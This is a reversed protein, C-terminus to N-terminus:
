MSNRIGKEIYALLFSLQHFSTNMNNIAYEIGKILDEESYKSLLFHLIGKDIKRNEGRQSKEYSEKLLKNRQIKRKANEELRQKKTLGLKDGEKKSIKKLEKKIKKSWTNHVKKFLTNSERIYKQLRAKELVIGLESSIPNDVSKSTLMGQIKVYPSMSVTDWSNNEFLVSKFNCRNFLIDQFICNKFTVDEFLGQLFEFGKFTCNEFLCNEFKMQSFITQEFRCNKFIVLKNHTNSFDKRSYNRDVLETGQYSFVKNYYRKKDLKYQKYIKSSM